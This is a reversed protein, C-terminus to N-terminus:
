MFPPDTCQCHTGTYPKTCNCGGSNSCSGHGDCDSSAVCHTCTPYDYYDTACTDCAAGAYGTDCSCANFICTGHGSCRGGGPCIALLPAGSAFIIVSAFASHSFASM